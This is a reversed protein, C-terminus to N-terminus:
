AAELETDSRLEDLPEVGIVNLAAAITVAVGRVLALRALSLQKDNEILFRLTGDDRGKNWLGHFAAAMDQAFYAIRHPESATAAQEVVRPWTAILKIIAMEEPRELRSLDAKALDTDTVAGFMEKAHKMVSCCRAHAYQVYFYPNDKSQETVRTYDFELTQGAERTLMIFRMVGSGVRDMMDRLTIFTGARKSMRVPQGNDTVHVISVLPLDLEAKGQTIAKVAAKARKVYGGHDAGVVNILRDYGMKHMHFYHAIDNAFYTTSGDSKKMPRDVDDGFDTSKFLTQERPEWDDPTKGKPPELVGQYILGLGTLQDMAKAVAGSNLIEAESVFLDHKVGLEGLDIKIENMLFRIAFDRVTKRDDWTKHSELYAKAVDKLYEGPYCGAPIEGINEGAAERIRLIVSDTLVEVQKGADNIYYEKQVAYGAKLMLNAVADGFIAGRAHGVTLPGTPNASVYEVNVKESKGITGDGFNKAGALLAHGLVARFAEPKLALNIFGPGAIDAKTINPNSAKLKEVLEEAVARPPKGAVKSLIMAANTAMDGHTADRPPEVTIKALPADPYLSHVVKHISERVENFINM